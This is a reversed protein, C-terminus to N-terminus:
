LNPSTSLVALGAAIVLMVAADVARSRVALAGVAATPLVLRVVALVAMLAALLMGALPVAGLAGVMLIVALALLAMTLVAQRRLAARVTFPSPDSIVPGDYPAASGARSAGARSVSLPATLATPGPGDARGPPGEGGAGDVRGCADM